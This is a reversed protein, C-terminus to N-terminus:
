KAYNTKKLTRFIYYCTFLQMIGNHDSSWRPEFFSVEYLEPILRYSISSIMDREIKGQLQIFQHQENFLHSVQMHLSLEEIFASLNVTNECRLELMAGKEKTDAELLSITIDAYAEQVSIYKKSDGERAKLQEMVKEKTYGREVTDRIVKWYTRLREEPKIFVKLDLMSRMQTLYFSHLGEFIVLKKSDFRSPITFTGSHHDYTRRYISDGNQLSYAHELDRHLENARPDLHTFKKWMEHGREWKHLADGAIIAIEDPKFIDSLLKAFTSKGSGSDGAIGILYPANYLKIKKSEEVGRKFIWLVNILLVIQLISFVLNSILGADFGQESLLTYLNPLSSAAPWVPELLRLFDGNQVFLFYAFYLISLLWFNIRPFEPNKAYFYVFFPIIWYYWGPMPPIFFTLIGFSFGLFMVFVDRNFFRFTASYILLAAYAMPVVFIVSDSGFPITLDFIKFQISNEFVLTRFGPDFIFPLNAVFFTTAAILIFQASYFLSKRKRWIYIATIPLLIIIHFKAAIALGLTLTAWWWYERFLFYLFMFVLMIPIADLQGQLYNIYFLVPSLWYLLLISREYGKLWRALIILIVIDACLIPLRFVLLELSTVNFINTELFPLFLFGPVSMLFLMVSPYPFADIIGFIAFHAYPNEGTIAFLKLFPIFFSSYYDSAFFPSAVLKLVLGAAFLPSTLIALKFVGTRDYLYKTVVNPTRLRSGHPVLPIHARAM